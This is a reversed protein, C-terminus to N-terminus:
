LLAPQIAMKPAYMRLRTAIGYRDCLELFVEELRRANPAACGYRSGYRQEYMRRVGPLHRDLQTYYYARQRDRLTM